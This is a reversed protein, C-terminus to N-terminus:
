IVVETPAWDLKPLETELLRQALKEIREVEETKNKVKKSELWIEKIMLREYEDLM